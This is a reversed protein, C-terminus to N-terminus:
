DDPDSSSMSTAAPRRAAAELRDGSAGVVPEIFQRYADEYGRDVLEALTQRRDSRDDHVGRFDFPGVPNHTPRIVFVREGRDEGARVADAVAATEAARVYEGARAKLERRGVALGHPDGPPPADTVLVVQEAGAAVTEAVLRTVAEPRDCMRHTEGRWYSEPRFGVLHPDTVAPLSLAAALADAVHDSAAGALDFAEATRAAAHVRSEGSFFRPRHREGLLAFVVDTRADLDHVAVLV